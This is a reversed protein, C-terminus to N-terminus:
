RASTFTGAAFLAPGDGDNYIALADVAGGSVGSGLSAWVAGDWRAINLVSVGGAAGFTGGAYLSSGLGQGGDFVALANVQHFWGTSIGTGASSWSEGDWRAIQPSPM